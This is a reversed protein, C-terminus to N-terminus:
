LSVPRLHAASSARGRISINAGQLLQQFSLPSIPGRILQSPTVAGMTLIGKCIRIIQGFRREQNESANVLHQPLAPPSCLLLTSYRCKVATKSSYLTSM